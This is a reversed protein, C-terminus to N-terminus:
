GFGYGVEFGDLLPFSPYWWWFGLVGGVVLGKDLLVGLLDWGIVCSWNLGVVDCVESRGGGFGGM